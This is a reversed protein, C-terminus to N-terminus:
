HAFNAKIIQLSRLSVKKTEAKDVKLSRGTKGLYVQQEVLEIFEGIDYPPMIKPDHEDNEAQNIMDMAYGTEGKLRMWRAIRSGSMPTWMGRASPIRNVFYFDYLTAGWAPIGNNTMKGKPMEDLDMAEGNPDRPWMQVICRTRERKKKDDVKEDDLIGSKSALPGRRDLCQQWHMNTKRYTEFDTNERIIPYYITCYDSNIPVSDGEEDRRQSNSSSMDINFPISSPLHTDFFLITFCTQLLTIPVHLYAVLAYVLVSDYSM